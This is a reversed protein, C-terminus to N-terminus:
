AFGRGILEFMSSRICRDFVGGFRHPRHAGCRAVSAFERIWRASSWACHYQVVALLGDRRRPVHLTPNLFSLDADTIHPIPHDRREPRAVDPYASETSNSLKV